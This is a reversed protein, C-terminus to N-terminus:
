NDIHTVQVMYAIDSDIIPSKMSLYTASSRTLSLKIMAYVM